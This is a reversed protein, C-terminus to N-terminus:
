GNRHLSISGKNRMKNGLALSLSPLAPSLSPEGCSSAPMPLAPDAPHGLIEETHVVQTARQVLHRM